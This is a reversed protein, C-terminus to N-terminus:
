QDDGYFPGYFDNIKGDFMTIKWLLINWVVLGNYNSPKNRSLFRVTSPVLIKKHYHIVCNKKRFDLKTLSYAM